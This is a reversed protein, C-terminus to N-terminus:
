PLKEANTRSRQASGGNVAVSKIEILPVIHCLMVAKLGGTTATLLIAGNEFAELAYIQEAFATLPFVSATYYPQFLCFRFFLGSM